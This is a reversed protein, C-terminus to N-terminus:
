HNLTKTSSLVSFYSLRNPLAVNTQYRGTQENIIKLNKTKDCLNFIIKIM